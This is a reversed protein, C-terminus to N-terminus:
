HVNPTEFHAFFKLSARSCIGHVPQRSRNKTIEHATAILRGIACSDDHGLATNTRVTVMEGGGDVASRAGLLEATRDDGGDQEEHSAEEDGDDGAGVLASRDLRNSGHGGDADRSGDFGVRGATAEGEFLDNAVDGVRINPHHDEFGDLVFLEKEGPRSGAHLGGELEGWRGIAGEEWDDCELRGEDGGCLLIGARVRLGLEDDVVLEGVVQLPLTARERVLREHRLAHCDIPVYTRLLPVRFSVRVVLLAFECSLVTEEVPEIRVTAECGM